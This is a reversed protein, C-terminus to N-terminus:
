DLRVVREVSGLSLRAGMLKDVREGVHGLMQAVMVGVVIMMMQVQPEVLHAQAIQALMNYRYIPRKVKSTQQVTFCQVKAHFQPNKENEDLGKLLDVTKRKRIQIM